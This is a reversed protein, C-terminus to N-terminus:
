RVFRIVMEAACNGTGAPWVAGGVTSYTSDSMGTRTRSGIIDTYIKEGVTYWCGDQEACLLQQENYQLHIDSYCTPIGYLADQASLLNFQRQHISLFYAMQIGRV